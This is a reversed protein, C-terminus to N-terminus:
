NQNFTFVTAWIWGNPNAYVDYADDSACLFTPIKNYMLPEDSGSWYAPGTPKNVDMGSKFQRFLVDQEVYPLLYTLCGVWSASPNGQWPVGPEVIAFTTIIQAHAAYGPPLRGNAANFANAALCIQKLNNTCKSRAAAERVKQVAPLLLGILVAIIAIVVLLEILTFAPRRSLRTRMLGERISVM